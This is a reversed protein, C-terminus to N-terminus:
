KKSCDLFYHTLGRTPDYRVVDCGNYTKVVEFEKPLSKPYATQFAWCTISVGILTRILGGIGFGQFFALQKQQEM